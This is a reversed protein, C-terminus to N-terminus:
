RYYNFINFGTAIVQTWPMETGNCLWLRPCTNEKYASYEDAQDALTRSLSILKM